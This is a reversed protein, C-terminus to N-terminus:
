QDCRAKSLKYFKQDFSHYRVNPNKATKHCLREVYQQRLLSGDIKCIDNWENLCVKILLDVADRYVSVTEKFIHHYTKIKVSYTSFIQM